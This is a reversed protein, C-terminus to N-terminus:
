ISIQKHEEVYANWDYPLEEIIDSIQWEDNSEEAFHAKIENIKAQVQEEPIDKSICLTGYSVDPDSAEVLHYTSVRPELGFDKLGDFITKTFIFNGFEEDTGRSDSHLNDTEIDGAREGIRIYSHRKDKIFNMIFDVEPYCEDNQYWCTWDSVLAVYTEDPTTFEGEQDFIDCLQMDCNNRIKEGLEEYDPKWLVLAVKSEYGM